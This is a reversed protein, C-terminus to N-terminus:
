KKKKDAQAAATTAAAAKNRKPEEVLIEWLIHAFGANIVLDSINWALSYYNAWGGLTFQIYDVVAGITLRDVMNGIAGVIFCFVGRRAVVSSDPSSSITRTIWVLILVSVGLMSKNVWDPFSRMMGFASHRNEVYVIDFSILGPFEVLEAEYRTSWSIYKLAFEIALVVLGVMFWSIPWKSGKEEESRVQSRTRVAM